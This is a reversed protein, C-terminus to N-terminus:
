ELLSPDNEFGSVAVLARWSVGNVGGVRGGAAEAGRVRCALRALAM